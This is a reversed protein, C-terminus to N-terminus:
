IIDTLYDMFIIKEKQIKQYRSNPTGIITVFEGSDKIITGRLIRYRTAEIDVHIEVSPYKSIIYGYIFANLILVTIAIFITIGSYQVVWYSTIPEPFFNPNMLIYLVRDAYYFTSILIYTSIGIQFIIIGIRVWYNDLSDHSWNQIGRNRYIMAYTALIFIPIILLYSYFFYSENLSTIPTSARIQFYFMISPFVNALTFIIGQTQETIKEPTHPKMSNIIKGFFLCLGGLIALIGTVPILIDTLNTM